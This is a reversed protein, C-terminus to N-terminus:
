ARIHRKQGNEDYALFRENLARVMINHNCLNMIDIAVGVLHNNEIAEKINLRLEQVIQKCSERVFEEDWQYGNLYEIGVIKVVEETVCQRRDYRLRPPPLSSVVNRIIENTYSNDLLRQFFNLKLIKLRDEMRDIKLGYMIETNHCHKRVGLALKMMMTECRRLKDQQGKNYVTCDAAYLMISRVMVVYFDAKRYPTLYESYMGLERLKAMSRMASNTRQLLHANNLGDSSIIAGLYRTQKEEKIPMNNLMLSTPVSKSKNNFILLVSKDPNLKIEVALGFEQVINLMHQMDSVKTCLLGVDDAYLLSNILTNNILLGIGLRDLMEILRRMYLTFLRPSIVGGQKVGLLTLFLTSFVGNCEVIAWSEEYYNM